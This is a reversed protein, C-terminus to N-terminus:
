TKTTKQPHLYRLANVTSVLWRGIRVHINCVEFFQENFMFKIMNKLSNFKIYGFRINPFKFNLFHVSRKEFFEKWM